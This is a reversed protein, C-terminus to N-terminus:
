HDDSGLIENETRAFDLTLRALEGYFPHLDADSMRTAFPVLWHRLHERWFRQQREAWVADGTAVEQFALFYMFELEHCIHDPIERPESRQTLGAESFADIVYRSVEGMLRGEPELYMSAYPPAQIEFPGLFLKAYALQM